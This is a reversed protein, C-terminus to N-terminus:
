LRTVSQLFFLDRTDQFSFFKPPLLDLPFPLSTFPALVKSPPASAVGDSRPLPSIMLRSFFLPSTIVLTPLLSYACLQRVLKESFLFSFGTTLAEDHTALFFSTIRPSPFSPSAWFTSSLALFESVPLFSNRLPAWTEFFSSGTSPLPPSLPPYFDFFPPFPAHFNRAGDFVFNLTRHSGSLFLSILPLPITFFFLLPSEM